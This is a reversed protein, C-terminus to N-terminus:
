SNKSVTYEASAPSMRALRELEKLATDRAADSLKGQEIKERLDDVDNNREEGDGLEKRIAKMQQRLYYERQERDMEERIEGQLKEGLKVVQLEHGLLRVLKQLRARVDFLELLQQKDQLRLDVNAGVLDALRGADECSTAVEKLEDPMNESHDVIKTFANRVSRALAQLRRETGPKDSRQRVRARLYPQRAAISEIEVRCVGKGLLRMSGDPFRL